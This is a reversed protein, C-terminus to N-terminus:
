GNKKIRQTHNKLFLKSPRYKKNKPLLIKKGDYKKLEKALAHDLRIKPSVKVKYDGPFGSKDNDLVIEFYNASVDSLKKEIELFIKGKKTKNYEISVM